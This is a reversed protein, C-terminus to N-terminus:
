VKLVAMLICFRPIRSLNKNERLRKNAGLEWKEQQIRPQETCSCVRREWPFMKTHPCKSHHTERKGKGEHPAGAAGRPQPCGRADGAAAGVGAPTWTDALGERRGQGSLASKPNETSHDLGWLHMTTASEGKGM